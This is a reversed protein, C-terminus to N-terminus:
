KIILKRKYDGHATSITAYYMGSSLNGVDLRSVGTSTAVTTGNVNCLSITQIDSLGTIRIFSQAPNPFLDFAPVDALETYGDVSEAVAFALVHPGGSTPFEAIVDYTNSNLVTISDDFHHVIWLEDKEPNNYLDFSIMDLVISDSFSLDSTNYVYINNSGNRSMMLKQGDKSVEVYNSGQSLVLSDVITKTGADIKFVKSSGAAIKYAFNGDPTFRIEGNDYQNGSVFFSTFSLDTRDVVFINGESAVWVEDTNPRPEIRSAKPIALSDVTMDDLHITKLERNQLCSLLTNTEGVHYMDGVRTELSDLEAHTDADIVKLYFSWSNAAFIKTGDASTAVFGYNRSGINSLVTKADGDIVTIQPFGSVFVKQAHIHTFLAASVMLTFIRKM